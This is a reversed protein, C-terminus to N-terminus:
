IGNDSSSAAVFDYEKVINPCHFNNTFYNARNIKRTKKYKYLLIKQSLRYCKM